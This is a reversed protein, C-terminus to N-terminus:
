GVGVKVYSAVMMVIEPDLAKVHRMRQMDLDAEADAYATQGRKFQHMAQALIAQIIPKPPVFVDIQTNQVHGAATSGNMARVVSLTEAETDTSNIQIYETEIRILQGAQFRPAIGWKNAGDADNVTVIIDSNALPNDEVEDASDEFVNDRDDSYGWIGIIRVGDNNVSHPFLALDGNPNIVLRNYSKKENRKTGYTAYYDTDEVLVTYTEGDDDSYAVSTIEILDDIWVEKGDVGPDFYRTDIEPYFTRRCKEDIFRSVTEALHTFLDNYQDTDKLADPAIMKIQEPTAYLNPM